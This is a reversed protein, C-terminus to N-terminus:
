IILIVGVWKACPPTKEKNFYEGTGIDGIYYMEWGVAAAAKIVDIGMAEPAPRAKLFNYCLSLGGRKVSNLVRCTQAGKGGELLAKQQWEVSWMGCRACPGGKFGIALYYGLSQAFSETKDVVENIEEVVRHSETFFGIETADEIKYQTHVLIAYKYSNVVEKVEEVDPTNPPCMASSNYGFCVPYRCKWQVRREIPILNTPIVKADYAGFEEKAKKCILELDKKIQEERELGELQVIRHYEPSAIKKTIM